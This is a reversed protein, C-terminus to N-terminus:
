GGAVARAFREGFEEGRRLDEVTPGGRFTFTELVEWKMAEALRRFEQEGGGGWGYSGFYAAKRNQVKKRAAVDLAHAMPPFLGGEYTPAGVIVGRYTWLAPLIYSVHTRAVDYIEVPIGAKSAGQAVANMMKETNGYMSGYLLAIGREVDGSAYGAWRRYLEIIRGPEKRWILGHSPAVVDVPIGSLKELARLVARSFTAVINVYYRLAEREYFSIDAYQDDFIGGQLAGYGGFGDCSFLVRQTTEYTMMTEPWHVFPTHVFQLVHPGLHLTEGDAVARVNDTIQYFSAVMEVTRPTGLIVAQPALQRLVSLIGTHDPEMHNIVIYDLKRIDAVNAIQALFEDTKFGKALDILATKEGRVIYANYSVGEPIIPWYGEFLDTTRDNVGIWFINPRIEVAPM